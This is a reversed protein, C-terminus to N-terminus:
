GRSAKIFQLNVAFGIHGDQEEAIMIISGIVSGDWRFVNLGEGAGVVEGEKLDGCHGAVIDRFDALGKVSAM